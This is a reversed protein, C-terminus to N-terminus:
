VKYVVVYLVFRQLFHARVVLFRHPLHTGFQSSQELLALRLRHLRDAGLVTVLSHIEDVCITFSPCNRAVTTAPDEVADGLRLQQRQFVLHLRTAVAEVTLWDFAHSAM